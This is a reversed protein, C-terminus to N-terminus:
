CFHLSDFLPPLFETLFFFPSPSAEKDRLRLDFHITLFTPLENPCRVEIFQPLGFARARCDSYVFVLRLFLPQCSM